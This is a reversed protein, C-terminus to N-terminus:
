VRADLVARLLAIRNSVIADVGADILRQMWDAEDVTWTTVGVGRDHMEEVTTESVLLFMPNFCEPSLRELLEDGPPHPDTWTLGLRAAPERARLDLLAPVNGTVFLCRSLAGAQRVADLAGHVVDGDTFDVMLPVPLTGLVEALTPIGWGDASLTSLEAAGLAAVAEDVGFLRRLTDDHHVVITGDLARQIDLEVLDAGAAMAAQFAGM